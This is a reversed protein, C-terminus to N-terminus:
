IATTLGSFISSMFMSVTNPFNSPSTSSQVKSTFSSSRGILIGLAISSKHGTVSKIMELVDANFMASAGSARLGHNTKKDSIGAEECM